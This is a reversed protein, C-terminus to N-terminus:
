PSGARRKRTARVAAPQGELLPLQQPEEWREEEAGGYKRIHMVAVPRGRLAHAILNRRHCKLPDEEACMVAVREQGAMEVLTELAQQFAPQQAMRSYDPRGDATMLHRGTPRGGLERGMYVYRMGAAPLLDELAARRFQPHYHSYPVTRVDVLTQIGHQLLLALFREPPHISHGITYLTTV